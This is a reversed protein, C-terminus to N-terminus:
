QATEVQVEERGKVEGIAIDWLDEFDRKNLREKRRRM